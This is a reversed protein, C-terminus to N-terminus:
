NNRQITSNMPWPEPDNPEPEPGPESEPEWFWLDIRHHLRKNPIDNGRAAFYRVELTDGPVLLFPHSGYDLESVLPQSPKELITFHHANVTNEGGGGSILVLECHTSLPVNGPEIGTWIRSAVLTRPSDVVWKATRVLTANVEAPFPLSNFVCGGYRGKRSKPLPFVIPEAM